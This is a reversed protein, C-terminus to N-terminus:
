FTFNELAGTSTTAGQVLIGAAAWMALRGNRIEKTAFDQATAPTRGLKLPNFAFDGPAREGSKRGETIAYGSVLEVMGILIVAAFIPAPNRDFCTWFLDIQNKGTPLGPLQSM